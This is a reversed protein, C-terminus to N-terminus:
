LVYASMHLNAPLAFYVLMRMSGGFACVCVLLCMKRAVPGMSRHVGPGKM